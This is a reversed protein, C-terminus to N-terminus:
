RANEEGYLGGGRRLAAGKIGNRTQPSVIAYCSPAGGADGVRSGAGKRGAPPMHTARPTAGTM